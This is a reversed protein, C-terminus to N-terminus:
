GMPVYPKFGAEILFDLFADERPYLRETGVKGTPCNTWFNDRDELRFVIVIRDAFDVKRSESYGEESSAYLRWWDNQGALYGDQALPRKADYPTVGLLSVNILGALNDTMFMEHQYPLGLIYLYGVDTKELAFACAIQLSRTLDLLPTEAIGYHQILAWRAVPSSKMKEIVRKDQYRYSLCSRLLRSDTEKLFRCREDFAPRRQSNRWLSPWLVHNRERPGRYERSQGRYLLEYGPNLAAIQAVLEVLSWYNTISDVARCGRLGGQTTTVYEGKSAKESELSHLGLQTYKLVSKPWRGSM